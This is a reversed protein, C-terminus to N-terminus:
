QSGSTRRTDRFPLSSQYLELQTRISNALESNGQDAALREARQATLVADPFRGAEAYAAALTATIIPRKGGTLSDANMALELAGEANRIQADPSTALLWAMNNATEADRPNIQLAKKYHALAEQVRAARLLANGLNYHADASEPAIQLARELHAISEEVRGKALFVVGINSHAEASNPVIELEIEFHAVAEDLQGLQLLANGLHAHVNPQRPVIRLAEQYHAIAEAIKGKEYLVVGFNKHATTNDSTSALTHRWLSESNRWHSAQTHATFIFAALVIAGFAGLFQRGHRWRGCLDVAGWTLLLYLGIHPLYTYRDARAQDGVQLIGIVPVLMVLYWLWGTVFYRRHRVLIVALSIGALLAASLVVVFTGVDRVSLPYLVALDSPWVLQRLYAVIAIAGNGVRIPLPILTFPRMAITQAFFTTVCSAAALGLLPLKEILLRRWLGFNDDGVPQVAAFRNLPWYDLLLLVLPLTVLMPKCMLGLAFLVAVLAYRGASKPLRTFRVYAGITLMFFLASLVDKREAVWAVSEVRLPHIAFVAAVFASRWFSGTMQRLVLFLSIATALHLLLNTLHHGGANLGYLQCDLMHSLWTLPHWNAAHVHTFAWVIGHISLGRAVEPNKYVYADDDYNVFEHQLTQGFVLWTILALFICVGFIPWRDNLGARSAPPAATKGPSAKRKSRRSM